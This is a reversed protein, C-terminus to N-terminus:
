REASWHLRGSDCDAQGGGVLPTATGFVRIWGRAHRPNVLRGAVKTEYFGNPGEGRTGSIGWPGPGDFQANISFGGDIPLRALRRKGDCRVTIHEFHWSYKRAATGAVVTDSIDIEASGGSQLPGSMHVTGAAGAAAPWTLVVIATMLRLRM